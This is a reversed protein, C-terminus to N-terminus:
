PRWKELGAVCGRLHALVYSGIGPIFHRSGEQAQLFISADALLRQTDSPRHLRKNMVSRFLCIFGAYFGEKVFTGYKKILLMAKELRQDAEYWRETYWDIRALGIICRVHGLQDSPDPSAIACYISILEQLAEQATTYQGQLIYAEALPLVLRRFPKSHEKGRERLATIDAFVLCQAKEPAGLECYVDALHHMGHYRSGNGHYMSGHGTILQLTTELTYCSDGFEGQYRFVRGIVTNKLRLVQLELASPPDKKTEWRALHAAAEKFEERHIANEARSLLLRGHACHLRIDEGNTSVKKEIDDIVMDSQAHNGMFRLFISKKVAIAIRLHDPLECDFRGALMSTIKEASSTPLLACTALSTEVISERLHAPLDLHPGSEIYRWMRQFYPLLQRRLSRIGKILTLHKLHLADVYSPKQNEQRPCIHTTFHLALLNRQSENLAQSTLHRSKDTVTYAPSGNEETRVLFGRQVCSEIIEQLKSHSSFALSLPRDLDTDKLIIEHWTDLDDSRQQPSLGAFLVDQPIKSGGLSHLLVLISLDPQVPSNKAEGDVEGQEPPGGNLVYRIDTIKEGVPCCIRSASNPSNAADYSLRRVVGTQDRADIPPVASQLTPTDRSQGQNHAVDNSSKM